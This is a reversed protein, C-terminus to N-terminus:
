VFKTLDPKFYSDPNKAIKGNADFLPKGDKFKSWNSANVEALAGGINLGFMHAVGIATVIQDCLDDLLAAKDVDNEFTTFQETFVEGDRVPSEKFAKALEIVGRHPSGVEPEHGFLTGFMEGIEEIHVGLQVSRNAQTPTPVAQEFWNKIGTIDITRM